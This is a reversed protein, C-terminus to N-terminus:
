YRYFEPKFPGAQPIGLYGAQDESLKTLKVGLHSLHAAAVEEDLQFMVYWVHTVGSHCILHMNSSFHVENHSFQDEPNGVLDSM